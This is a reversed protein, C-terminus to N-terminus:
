PCQLAFARALHWWKLKADGETCQDSELGSGVGPCSFLVGQVVGYGFVSDGAVGDAVVGDVDNSDVVTGNGNM